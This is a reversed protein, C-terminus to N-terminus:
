RGNGRRAGIRNPELKLRELHEALLEYETAMLRLEESADANTLSSAVDRIEAARDRYRAARGMRPSYVDDEALMTWGAM